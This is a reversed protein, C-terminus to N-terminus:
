VRGNLLDPTAAPNLYRPAQITIVKGSAADAELDIDPALTRTTAIEVLRDIEVAIPNEFPGVQVLRCQQRARLGAVLYQDSHLHRRRLRFMKFACNNLNM